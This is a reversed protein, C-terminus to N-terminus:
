LNNNFHYKVTDILSQQNEERVLSPLWGVLQGVVFGLAVRVSYLWQLVVM